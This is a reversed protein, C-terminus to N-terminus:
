LVQFSFPILKSKKYLITAQDDASRGIPQLLSRNAVVHRNILYALRLPTAQSESFSHYSILLFHDSMQPFFLTFQAELHNKNNSTPLTGLILDDYYLQSNLHIQSSLPVVLHPAVASLVFSTQEMWRMARLLLTRNWALGNECLCRSSAFYMGGM